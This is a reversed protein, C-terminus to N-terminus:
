FKIKSIKKFFEFSVDLIGSSIGEESNSFTVLCEPVLLNSDSTIIYKQINEGSVGGIFASDILRTNESVNPSFM